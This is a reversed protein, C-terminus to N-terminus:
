DKQIHINFKNWEESLAAKLQEKRSIDRKRTRKELEHRVNDIPNLDPFYPPTKIVKPCM